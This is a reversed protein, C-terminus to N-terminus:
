IPLFLLSFIGFPGFSKLPRTLFPSVKNFNVNSGPAKLTAFIFFRQYILTFLSVSRSLPKSAELHHVVIIVRNTSMFNSKKKEGTSYSAISNRHRARAGRHIPISNFSIHHSTIRHSTIHHYNVHKHMILQTDNVICFYQKIVLIRHGGGVCMSNIYFAQIVTRYFQEPHVDDSSRHTSHTHTYNSHSWKKRKTEREGAKMRETTKAMMVIIRFLKSRMHHRHSVCPFAYVSVIGLKRGCMNPQSWNLKTPFRM